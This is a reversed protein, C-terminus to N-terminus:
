VGNSFAEGVSGIGSPCLLVIPRQVHQRHAKSIFDRVDATYDAVAVVLADGNGLGSSSPGDLELYDLVTIRPDRAVLTEILGRDVESDLAVLVNIESSM